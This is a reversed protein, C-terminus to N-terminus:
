RLWIRTQGRLRLRTGTMKEDSTDTEAQRRRLKQKGAEEEIPLRKDKPATNMPATEMAAHCMNKCYDRERTAFPKSNYTQAATAGARQPLLFGGSVLTSGQLAM